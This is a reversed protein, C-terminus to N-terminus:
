MSRSGLIHFCCYSNFIPLELTRAVAISCKDRRIAVIWLIRVGAEQPFKHGGRQNGCLPVCCSSPMTVFVPSFADRVGRGDSLPLGSINTKTDDAARSSEGDSAEHSLSVLIGVFIVLDM